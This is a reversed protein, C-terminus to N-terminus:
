FQKERVEGKLIMDPYGWHKSCLYYSKGEKQVMPEKCKPCVFSKTDSSFELDQSHIEQDKYENVVEDTYEILQDATKIETIQESPKKISPNKLSNEWVSLKKDLITKIGNIVDHPEDQSELEVSMSIEYNETEYNGLNVKKGRTVTIKDINM